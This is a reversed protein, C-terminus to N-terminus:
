KKTKKKVKELVHNNFAAKELKDDAFWLCNCISGNSNAITMHPGGSLLVVIDGNKLENM